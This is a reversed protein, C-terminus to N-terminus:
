PVDNHGVRDCQLDYESVIDFDQIYQINKQTTLCNFVRSFAMDQGPYVICILGWLM